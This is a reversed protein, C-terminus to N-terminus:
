SLPAPRPQRASNGGRRAGCVGTGRAAYERRADCAGTGREGWITSQRTAMRPSAIRRIPEARTVQGLVAQLSTSEGSMQCARLKDTRTHRRLSSLGPAMRAAETRGMARIGGAAEVQGLLVPPGHASAYIHAAGVAGAERAEGTEGTAPLKRGAGERSGIAQTVAVQEAADSRERHCSRSQAGDGALEAYGMRRDSPMDGPCSPM